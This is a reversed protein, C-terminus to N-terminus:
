LKQENALLRIAHANSSSFVKDAAEQWPLWIYDLHERPSVTIPMTKPLMLGFVHEINYVTGPPYRWSWEEYIEYRNQIQWNSLDYDAANLGTEERIERVATQQLTEGPDQSGTVSQWYGPHDARELLLIQFDATHIVVLVSVPLKYTPM